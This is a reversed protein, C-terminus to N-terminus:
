MCEVFRLLVGFLFIAVYLDIDLAWKNAAYVTLFARECVHVWDNTTIAILRLPIQENLLRSKNNLGNIKRRM